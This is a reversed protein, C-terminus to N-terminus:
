NQRFDKMKEKNEEEKEKLIKQEEKFKISEKLKQRTPGHSLIDSISMNIFVAVFLLKSIFRM